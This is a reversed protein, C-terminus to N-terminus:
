VWCVPVVGVYDKAKRCGPRRETEVSDTDIMVGLCIVEKGPAQLRQTKKEEPIAQKSTRVFFKKPTYCESYIRLCKYGLFNRRIVM